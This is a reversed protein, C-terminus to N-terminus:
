VWGVFVFHEKNLGGYWSRAHVLFKNFMSLKTHLVVSKKVLDGTSHIFLELIMLMMPEFSKLLFCESMPMGLRDEKSKYRIVLVYIYIYICKLPSPYVYKHVNPWM